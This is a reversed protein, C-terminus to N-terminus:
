EIFLRGTAGAHSLKAIAQLLCERATTAGIPAARTLLRDKRAGFRLTPSSPWTAM